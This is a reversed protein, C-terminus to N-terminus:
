GARVCLMTIDDSQPAGATFELVRALVREITERSTLAACSRLESILREDTFDDLAGNCAEPVGDTYLFVADGPGLTLSGGTFAKWSLWHLL